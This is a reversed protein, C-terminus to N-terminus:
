FEALATRKWKVGDHRYHYNSDYAIQGSIGFSTSTSPIYNDGQFIIKNRIYTGSAFDLTLTNPGSTSHTRTQSDSIVGAGSHIASALKGGIAFAHNAKVVNAEGGLNFGYRGSVSNRWGGIIFAYDGSLDNYKGGLIAQNNALGFSNNSLEYYSKLSGDDYVGRYLTENNQIM